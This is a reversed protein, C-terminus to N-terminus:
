VVRKRRVHWFLMLGTLLAPMILINFLKLNDGLADIDKGLQHQVDRLEKRVQLRQAQFRVLEEQQEPSLAQQDADQRL